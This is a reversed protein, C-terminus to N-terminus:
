VIQKHYTLTLQLIDYITIKSYLTNNFNNYFLITKCSSINKLATLDWNQIILKWFYIKKSKWFQKLKLLNFSFLPNSFTSTKRYSKIQIEKISININQKVLGPEFM